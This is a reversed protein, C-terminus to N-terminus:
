KSECNEVNDDPDYILSGKIVNDVCFTYSPKSVAATTMIVAVGNADTVGYGTENFDESFTGTVEAGPIPSGCDDFVSVAVKGYKGKNIGATVSEIHMTTPTCFCSGAAALLSCDTNTAGLNDTVTLCVDYFGNSLGTVTPNIGIATQNNESPTKNQLNWSYSTISGDPDYSDSGDLAVEDFVVKDNGAHAFPSQNFDPIPTDPHPETLFPEYLIYYPQGYEDNHDWIM